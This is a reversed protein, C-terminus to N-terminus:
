KKLKYVRVGQKNKKAELTRGSRRALTNITGLVSSGGTAELMEDHTAGKEIMRFLQAKRGHLEEGNELKVPEIEPDAKEADAESPDKGGGGIGDPAGYGAGIANRTADQLAGSEDQTSATGTEDGSLDPQKAPDADAGAPISGTAPADSEGAAGAATAEATTQAQHSHRNGAAPADPDNPTDGGATGPSQDVAQATGSADAAAQAAEENDRKPDNARTTSAPNNDATANQTAQAVSTTEDKAAPAKKQRKSTTSKAM